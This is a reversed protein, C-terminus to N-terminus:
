RRMGPLQPIYTLSGVVWYEDGGAVMQAYTIDFGFSTSRFGVGGSVIHQDTATDFTYGGRIPVMPNPRVELGVGHSLPIDDRDPDLTGTLDYELYVPGFAMGAAGVLERLQGINEHDLLNRGVFAVRFNNQFIFLGGIDLNWATNSNEKIADPDSTDLYAMKSHHYSAGLSYMLGQTREAMALGSRFFTSTLSDDYGEVDAMVRTYSMGFAMRPNLLADDTLSVTMAQEAGDGYNYALNGEYIRSYGQAAPNHVLAAWGTGGAAVAGGMAIGRPSDFIIPRKAYAQEPMLTALLIFALSVTLVLQLRNPHARRQTMVHRKPHKM